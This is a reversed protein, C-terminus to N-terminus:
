WCTRTMNEAVGIGTKIGGRLFVSPPQLEGDGGEGTESFPRSHSSQFKRNGSQCIEKKKAMLAVAAEEPKEGTPSFRGDFPEEEERKRTRKRGSGVSSLGGLKFGRFLSLCLLSPARSTIARPTREGTVAECRFRYKARKGRLERADM